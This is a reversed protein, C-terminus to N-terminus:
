RARMPSASATPSEMLHKHNAPVYLSAGLSKAM